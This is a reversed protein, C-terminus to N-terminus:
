AEIAPENWPSPANESIRAALAALRTRQAPTLYEDDLDHREGTMAAALMAPVLGDAQREGIGARRLTDYASKVDLGPEKNM